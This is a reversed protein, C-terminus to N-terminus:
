DQCYFFEMRQFSSLKEEPPQYIYDPSYHIDELFVVHVACVVSM